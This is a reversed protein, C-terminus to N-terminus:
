KLNRIADRVQAAKEYDESAVAEALAKELKERESVPAAQRVEELWNELSQVENAQHALEPQGQERFCTRLAELGGEIAEIARAHEKRELALMGRARTQLMLLQPLFQKLPEVTEPAASNQAAFEMSQLNRDTDRIVGEFDELQFLCIYRHHFQILEQQLKACDDPTLRFSDGQRAKQARYHELLSAHGFPKKGDPRGTANMQMVGLDVRLQIKETGDKGTFKRVALKGPQYDWQELLSSIDFSM